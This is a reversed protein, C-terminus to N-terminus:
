VSQRDLGDPCRLGRPVHPCAALVRTRPSKLAPRWEEAARRCHRRRHPADYEFKFSGDPIHSSCGIRRSSVVAPPGDDTNRHPMSLPWGVASGCRVVAGLSNGASTHVLGAATADLGPHTRLRREASANAPRSSDIRSRM